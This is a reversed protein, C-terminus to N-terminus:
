NANRVANDDAVPGQCLAPKFVLPAPLLFGAQHRFAIDQCEQLLAQCGSLRRSRSSDTCWWALRLPSGGSNTGATISTSLWKSRKALPMLGWYQVLVGGFGRKTSNYLDWHDNVRPYLKYADPKVHDPPRLARLRM